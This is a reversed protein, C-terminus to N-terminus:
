EFLFIWRGQSHCVNCIWIKIDWKKYGFIKGKRDLQSSTLTPTPVFFTQPWQFCSWMPWLNNIYDWCSVVGQVNLHSGVHHEWCFSIWKQESWLWMLSQDSHRRHVMNQVILRESPVKIEINSIVYFHQSIFCTYLVCKVASFFLGYFCFVDCELLSM